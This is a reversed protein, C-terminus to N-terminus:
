VIFSKSVASMALGHNAKALLAVPGESLRAYILALWTSLKVGHHWPSSKSWFHKVILGHFYPETRKFGSYMSEVTNIILACSLLSTATMERSHLPLPAISIDTAARGPAKSSCLPKGKIAQIEIYKAHHIRNSVGTGHERIFCRPARPARAWHCAAQSFSDNTGLRGLQMFEASNSGLEGGSECSNIECASWINWKNKETRGYINLSEHLERQFHKPTTEHSFPHIKPNTRTSSM